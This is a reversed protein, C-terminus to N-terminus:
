PLTPTVPAAVHERLSLESVVAFLFFIAAAVFVVTLPLWPLLDSGAHPLDRYTAAFISPPAIVLVLGNAAVVMVVWRALLRVGKASPGLTSGQMVPDRQPRPSLISGRFMYSAGNAVFGFVVAGLYSYLRVHTWTVWGATTSLLAGVLQLALNSLTVVVEAVMLGLLLSALRREEGIINPAQWSPRWDVVNLLAVGLCILTGGLLGITLALASASQWWALAGALLTCAVTLALLGLIAGRRQWPTWDTARWIPYREDENMDALEKERLGACSDEFTAFRKRHWRSVSM